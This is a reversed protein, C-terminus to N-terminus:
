PREAPTPRHREPKEVGPLADVHLQTLQEADEARPPPGDCCAKEEDDAEGGRHRHRRRRGVRRGRADIERDISGGVRGAAVGAPHRDHAVVVELCKGLHEVGRGDHLRQTGLEPQRRSRPDADREVDGVVGGDHVDDAAGAVRLSAAAIALVV